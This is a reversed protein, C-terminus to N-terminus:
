ITLIIGSCKWFCSKRGMPKDDNYIFQRVRLSWRNDTAMTVTVIPVFTTGLNLNIILDENIFSGETNISFHLHGWGNPKITADNPWVWCYHIPFRCVTRRSKTDIYICLALLILSLRPIGLRQNQLVRSFKCNIIYEGSFRLRISTNRGLNSSYTM